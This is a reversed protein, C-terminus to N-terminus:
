PAGEPQTRPEEALARLRAVEDRLASVEDASAPPTTPDTSEARNRRGSMAMMAMCVVMMLGCGLAPGLARLM